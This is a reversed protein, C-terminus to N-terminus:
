LLQCFINDCLRYKVLFKQSRQALIDSPLRFNFQCQCYKVVNIDTTKFIKVFLRNIALDLSNIDAKNLPCAELGYLLVPMCKASIIQLIVEESAKRGIKGFIANAARYFSRKAIDLSCKFIRSQVFYVGLYRIETAWPIVQGSSSIISACKVDCRQGIRMCFSKRSNIVMDLWNLELECEHLLRELLTVSPALLLIDDAYIITYANCEPRCLDGIGDIYMAFLFPSLVSGQRVGFNIM